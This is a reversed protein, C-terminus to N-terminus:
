ISLEASLDNVPSSRHLLLPRGQVNFAVPWHVLYLDLYDLGLGALSQELGEAPNDHYTNWLKSTVFVDERKTIGESFAKRLGEGVEKENQYVLAADIHRYGAKLAAYVAQSVEGPGSKWTGLLRNEDAM